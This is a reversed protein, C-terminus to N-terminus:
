RTNSRTIFEEIQFIQQVLPVKRSYLGDERLKVAIEKTTAGDSHMQRMIEQRRKMLQTRPHGGSERSRLPLLLETVGDASFATIPDALHEPRFLAKFGATIQNYWAFRVDGRGLSSGDGRPFTMTAFPLYRSIPAASRFQPYVWLVRVAISRKQVKAPATAFGASSYEPLLTSLANRKLPSGGSQELIPALDDLLSLLKTPVVLRHTLVTNLVDFFRFFSQGDILKDDHLQAFSSGVGAAPIVYSDARWWLSRTRLIPVDVSNTPSTICFSLGTHQVNTSYEGSLANRNVYPGFVLDGKLDAVLAGWRDAFDNM